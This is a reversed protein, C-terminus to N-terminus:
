VHPAPFRIPPSAPMRDFRLPQSSGEGVPDVGGLQARYEEVTPLAGIRATVAAVEASALFVQADRGMRNPYNRTSTSVVTAGPEVRAQNGMCLSCGPIETRARAAAFARYWGEERLQAEDMRTPPAVWLRTPSTGGARGAAALVSGLARFHGINTMCSGVFVEDVRRGAVESLPRVDDPDNPCALLPEEIADLDVDVIAAYSADADARLLSPAELWRQMADTRRQLARADEYGEDILRRLLAVCSRLWDAVSEESLAITCAAASREATADTLEFAQEVSLDELGEMEIIRGGFVNRRGTPGVSLRGQQRAAYPVAHVIDRLTVGPQRRGRFRVLVSEPMELPMTGLAAAFAVLGSGAPFSIGLPFRTHSDSGTGVQDPLLMRNLWSHIIGDGPRLVVAGRELMFAPLSRQTEIDVPKPYAATHCFTQLVLDAGFGVCALERLESRNMPGTTDQSGVTSVVPECATGPAVGERGCARGVIKQALTHAARAHGNAGAAVPRRPSPTGLARCAQEQLTRGIILQLRGGARVEDLLRDPRLSFRALVRGTASEIRGDRPRLVIHDGTALASTDCEVPLAGVDELTNFFIPAIASGIVVGGRRKGPVHAIDEGIHWVLSNVASKRSSGTGVVDGVFAVSRGLARLARVTGVPDVVDARSELLTLAHWPIDDRSWAHPAPSLDDTTIEGDVKWVTLALEDAVPPRRALWEVAAWSELVARAHRNGSAALAAVDHFADFVLLTGSLQGAASAALEDPGRLLAVLPAVNCGGLMTGLLAVARHPDLATCSTRGLAIDALFDAKVRAADDVGPPVRDALLEVLPGPDGHGKTLDHVLETVQPADLPRPPLGLRAREATRFRPDDVM